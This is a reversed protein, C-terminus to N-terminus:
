KSDGSSNYNGSDRGNDCDSAPHREEGQASCSGKARTLRLRLMNRSKDYELRGILDRNFGAFFNRRKQFEAHTRPSQKRTM